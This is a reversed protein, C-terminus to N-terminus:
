IIPIVHYEPRVPGPPRAFLNAQCPQNQAHPLGPFGPPVETCLNIWVPRRLSFRRRGGRPLRSLSYSYPADYGIYSGTKVKYWPSCHHYYFL